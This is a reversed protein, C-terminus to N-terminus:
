VNGPEYDNYINYMVLNMTLVYYIEYMALNM